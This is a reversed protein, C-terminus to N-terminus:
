CTTKNLTFSFAPSRSSWNILPCLPGGHIRGTHSMLYKEGISTHTTQQVEALCSREYGVTPRSEDVSLSVGSEVLQKENLVYFTGGKFRM